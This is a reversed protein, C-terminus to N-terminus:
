KKREKGERKEGGKKEGRGLLLAERPDGCIRVGPCQARPLSLHMGRVGVGGAPKPCGLLGEPSCPPPPFLGAIIVGM